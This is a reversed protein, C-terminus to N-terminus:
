ICTAACILVPVMEMSGDWRGNRGDGNDNINDVGHEDGGAM